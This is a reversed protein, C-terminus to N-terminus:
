ILCRDLGRTSNGEVMEYDRGEQKPEFVLHQPVYNRLLILKQIEICFHEMGESVTIFRKWYM